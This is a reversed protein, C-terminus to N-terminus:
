GHKQGEGQGSLLQQLVPEGFLSPSHLTGPLLLPLCAPLSTGAGSLQCLAEGKDRAEKKGCCGELSLAPVVGAAGLPGSATQGGRVQVHGAVGEASGRDRGEEAVVADAVM